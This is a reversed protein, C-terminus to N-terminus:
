ANLTERHFKEAFAEFDAPFLPESIFNGQATDCGMERLLNLSAADEVGEAVIKLGLNHGLDIISRVLIRDAKSTALKLIFSKDIKVEHMPFQSLYSLSSYGTGFDDISLSVGIASLKELIALAQEVDGMVTGETVELIVATPPLQAVALKDAILSPLEDNQLNRASLNIAIHLLLGRKRWATAQSLTTNLIWDTLLLIDGTQEAM